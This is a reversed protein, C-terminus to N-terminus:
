RSQNSSNSAKGWKLWNDGALVGNRSYFVKALSASMPSPMYEGCQPGGLSPACEVKYTFYFTGYKFMCTDTVRGRRLHFSCQGLLDSNWYTDEDYVLFRLQTAMNITIPGFEFRERWRPNDNNDIVATRKIQRGYTVQVSGDTKTWRDGYLGTASLSFVELTALGKGAPCCNSKINQNSNCVCACRDRASSRHGVQCSESCKKFLANKMVYEEVAKKLGTRAPHNNKLITHLPKLAYRVVDPITKLSELWTAYAKPDSQGSFLLDAGDIKGGIVETHRDHFMSSFSQGSGMKKKKAQCHKFEAKVKASQAFTASAEVELCDKVETQTLGNMTAQCSKISTTGKMEGGLKVQKIYHTGYTDILNNYATKTNLSYVPLSKISQVFEHHLPPNAQIRYNYFTCSVSHRAFTYKDEKSKQMAYTAERSHSGGLAVGVGVGPTVPLELGIKWSNSVASTSDNILSESSDYSQSSVMLNCKPLTRWDVVAVPIKQMKGHLYNNRRLRCTGNGQKWTEVDIVYAGKREMKVIDFGEGGLNYGPVFEATECEQPGGLISHQVSLPLCLPGGAWCLLMLYWLRAM